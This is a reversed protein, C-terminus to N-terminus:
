LVKRSPFAVNALLLGMVLALAIQMVDAFGTLGGVTDGSLLADLSRLSLVGPVLLLLGPMLFVQAPRLSFRAWVNASVALVMAQLFASQPGAFHRTLLGALWVVFASWLALRVLRRPLALLVAFGLAALLVSFVGIFWTAPVREPEGVIGPLGVSAELSVVLAIGFALSLLTIGAHMLRATGAVLNKHVLEVLGTTLTLGPLLPIIIALVIADRSVNMVSDTAWAVCAALVGGLLNELVRVGGQGTAASNGSSRDLLRLGMMLARLAVGGLAAVLAATLTSGFSVAAGGSSAAAALLQMSRSWPAPAALLERIRVRAEPITSVRQAVENVIEDLAWLRGLDNAWETVRVMTTLSPQGEPTRLGVFLGTPVAFVDATAGELRAVAMLLEELRHTPCGVSMLASGLEVLYDLLVQPQLREESM